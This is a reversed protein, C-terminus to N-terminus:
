LEAHPRARCQAEDCSESLAFIRLTDIPTGGDEAEVREFPQGLVPTYHPQVVPAAEAVARAEDPAAEM